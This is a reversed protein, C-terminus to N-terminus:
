RSASGGATGSRSASPWRGSTSPGRPTTTATTSPSSGSTATAPQGHGRRRRPARPDRPEGRVARPGRRVRRAPRRHHRGPAPRPRRRRGRRRGLLVRTARELHASAEDYRGHKRAIEALATEAWGQAGDDGAAAALGLAETAVAEARAWSGVLELVDGLRLLSQASSPASWSRRSASSTTSRPRRQRVGGPRGRRRAAPLGRKAGRRRRALLPARAPRPQPRHRGAADDELFTGVRDHLTARLAFPMSEYAVEQTVVHKFLTRRTRPAISSCSTPEGLTRLHARVDDVDGLTPTRRGAPRPRPVRARRRERGQAHAAAAGRAHRHPQPDPQAPQRAPRARGPRARRASDIGQRPRLQAAGRRLVPQGPGAGHRPRAPRRLGRRRRRGAAGLKSRILASDGDDLASLPVETSGPLRELGLRRRRAAAPRYALVVLVPLGACSARAGGAPRALAPRALPLGRARDRLPSAHGGARAPVDALLDELSTKRLKADFAATLETDPLDLGLLVGLLPARPVLAPDIAALAARHAREADRGHVDDPRPRLLTAGSRRALRPLEHEHRVVPVRRVRVLVGREDRAAVFEAVLRSKGM